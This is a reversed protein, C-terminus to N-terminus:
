VIIILVEIIDQDKYYLIECTYQKQPNSDQDPRGILLISVLYARFNKWVIACYPVTFATSIISSKNQFSSYCIHEIPRENFYIPSKSM